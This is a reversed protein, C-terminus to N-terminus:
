ASVFLSIVSVLLAVGAIIQTVNYKRDREQLDALVSALLPFHIQHREPAEEEERFLFFKVKVRRGADDYSYSHKRDLHYYLRGFVIDGDVDLREAVERINVPVFVKSERAYPADKAHAAFSKYYRDYIAQLIQRDTPVKGKNM